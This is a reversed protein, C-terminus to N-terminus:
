TVVYQDEFPVIPLQAGVMRGIERAWQGAANVVVDARITGHDTIVEWEDKQRTLSLVRTARYIEAGRQRAGAALAITVSSPDVYGDAPIFSAGLLRGTSILPNLEQAEQPSVMEFSVGIIRAMDSISTYWDLVDRNPALRLSGVRHFGVHQGTEAELTQYLEVSYKLLRLLNLSTTFMPTNGVSHWTSGGTLEGKEILVVDTWGLKTLHYLVSCGAIGGGIVVARAHQKMSRM